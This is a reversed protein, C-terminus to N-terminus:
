FKYTYGLEVEFQHMGLTIQQSPAMPNVGTVKKEPSFM